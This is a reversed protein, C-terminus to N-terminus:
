LDLGEDLVMEENMKKSDVDMPESHITMVVQIGDERKAAKRLANMYYARAETQNRHIETVKRSMPFKMALHHISTVVQLDKLVPLPVLNDGTFGFLAESIATLEHDVDMQDFTCGFLINVTSGDDVLMRGLGNRTVVICVVLADCHPSTYVSRMKRLLRSKNPEQDIDGLVKWSEM